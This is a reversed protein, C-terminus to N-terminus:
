ISIDSMASPYKIALVIDIKLIHFMPAAFLSLIPVNKRVVVSVCSSIKGM